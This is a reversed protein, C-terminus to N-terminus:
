TAPRWKLGILVTRGPEGYGFAQQYHSGALNEIRATVALGHSLSWSGTIYAVAFPRITGYVDPAADQARVGLDASWPGHTWAISGSGVDRPVKLLRAGTQGDVADDHTYSAHLSLGIPLAASGVAEVGTSRVRETNLYGSGFLYDIQDRVRLEFWTAQLSFRGDTWAVGADWGEAREPKLNPKAGPVACEFCPYTTEFISPAKFGQGWSGKMTLGAGVQWALAIRGTTQGTYRQVEDRRLSATLTLPQAPTLRGIAYYGTMDRTERGDGTNEQQSTHEAGLALGYLAQDREAQWRIVQQGGQAGYAFAGHYQRDLDMLDARLTHDFGLLDKAQARVYGSAIRTDSGDSSDIVGTPGGFGDFETAAANTRARADLSFRDNPTLRLNASVTTTNFGDPETNGDKEDAKSVGDTRFTSVALGFAYRDTAHGITAATRITALSGGQASLAVGEPERTTIAIVGGIADSGWLSSQPGTLVEIRQVNDADLSSFDFGGAPASPDNVPVGDIMVVTKDGSAGRLRVTSVGGFAGNESISVGPVEALLDAVFPAGRRQIQLDTVVYAGPTAALPAPLRSTTITLPEVQTQALAGVPVLAASAFLAAALTKNM